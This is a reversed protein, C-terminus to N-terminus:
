AYRDGQVGLILDRKTEVKLRVSELRQKWLTINPEHDIGLEVALDVCRCLEEFHEGEVETGQLRSLTARVKEEQLVIKVEREAQAFDSLRACKADRARDLSEYISDSNRYSDCKPYHLSLQM